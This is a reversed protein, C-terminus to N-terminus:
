IPALEGTDTDVLSSDTETQKQLEWRFSEKQSKELKSMKFEPLFPSLNQQEHFQQFGFGEM